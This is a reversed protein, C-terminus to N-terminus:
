EKDERPNTRELTKGERPNLEKYYLTQGKLAKDDGPNNGKHNTKELSRGELTQRRELRRGRPNTRELSRGELTQGYVSHKRTTRGIM